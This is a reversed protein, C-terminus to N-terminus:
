KTEELLWVSQDYHTRIRALEALAHQKSDFTGIAVRIFHDSDMITPEFGKDRLIKTM